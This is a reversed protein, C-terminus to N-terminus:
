DEPLADLHVGLRRAEAYLLKSQRAQKISPRQGRAIRKGVDYAIKRQWPQLNGTQAAWRSIEFWTAAPVDAIQTILAEEDPTAGALGQNAPEAKGPRDVVRLERRLSASPRWDLEEVTKWCDLKKCWEGIHRVTGSPNTVIRFVHHSLEAIAEQLAPSLRQQRWIEDLNIRHQTAYSLKAITYTVIQARYGGFRQQQVIKEASRFLLAMAVLRQFWQIDPDICRDALRLM